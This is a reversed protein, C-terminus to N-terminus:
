PKSADSSAAVVFLGFVVRFRLLFLAYAIASKSQTRARAVPLPLFYVGVTAQLRKSKVLKRVHRVLYVLVFLPLM